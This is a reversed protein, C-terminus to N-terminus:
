QCGRCPGECRRGREPMGVCSMIYCTVAYPTANHLVCCTMRTRQLVLIVNHGTTHTASYNCPMHSEVDYSFMALHLICALAASLPAAAVSPVSCPASLSSHHYWLAASQFILHLTRVFPFAESLVTIGSEQVTRYGSSCLTQCRMADNVTGHRM